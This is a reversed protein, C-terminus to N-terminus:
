EKNNDVPVINSQILEDLSQTTEELGLTDIDSQTIEIFVESVDNIFTSNTTNMISQGKM